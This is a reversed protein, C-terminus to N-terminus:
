SPRSIASLAQQLPRVSVSFDGRYPGDICVLLAILLALGAVYFGLIKTEALAPNLLAADCVLLLLLGAVIEWLASLLDHEAVGERSTRDDEVDNFNRQVLRSTAREPEQALVDNVAAQLRDLAAQTDPSSDGRKMAPWERTVVSRVYEQLRSRAQVAAPSPIGALAHDLQLINGAERSVALEADRLHNMGQVLLFVLFIGVLSALIKFVDYSAAHTAASVVKGSIRERLWPALRVAGVFLVMYLCGLAYM